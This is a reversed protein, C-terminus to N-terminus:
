RRTLALVQARLAAAETIQGVADRSGIQPTVTPASQGAAQAVRVAVCPKEVPVLGVGGPGPTAVSLVDGLQWDLGWLPTRGPVETLTFEANGGTDQEALFEKAAQQLEALVTSSGQQTWQVARLSGAPRTVAIRRTRVRAVGDGGGGVIVQDATRRALTLRAGTVTRAVTSYRAAPTTSPVRITMAVTSSTAQRFAWVIGGSAAVRTLVDLLAEDRAQWTGSTGVSALSGSSPITLWPYRRWTVGAAPGINAAVYAAAIQGATGTRTDYVATTAATGGTPIDATPDTYAREWATVADDPVWAIVALGATADIEVETVPGSAVVATRSADAPDRRRMVIGGCARPDTPDSLDILHALAPHDATVVIRGDGVTGGAGMCRLDADLSLWAALPAQEVMADDRVTLILDPGLDSM